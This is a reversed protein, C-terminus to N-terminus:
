RASGTAKYAGAALTAAASVKGSSSVTLNPAGTSQAYTVNGHAGSLELQSSFARGTPTRATAPAVQTIKTATVALAFSWNGTDGLTDRASGTAKYAGAALTAAASVKGSSSVTLNPAGTSQAYTVNGHAGSLELQSSFAKGTPTRAATPAIQTIRTSTVTLAFSWTGTDGLSDRATGTAKYTGTALTAAASAKGSSSVTLTPAGTSQAYTVNGHSGSVKLQDNFA